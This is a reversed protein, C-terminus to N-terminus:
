DAPIYKPSPGWKNAEPEGDMLVMVFVIVASVGWVVSLLFYTLLTSQYDMILESLDETSVDYGELFLDMYEQYFDAMGGLAMYLQAATGLAYSIYVWLASHGGDHLRRATVALGCFMIIIGAIASALMHSPLVLSTVMNCVFVLMMWWWFESRRSRGKFDILRGSALKVADGLGLQPLM